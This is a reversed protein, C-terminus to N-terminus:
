PWALKLIARALELIARTLKFIRGTFKFVARTLKLIAWAVVVITNTATASDHSFVALRKAIIRETFATYDVEVVVIRDSHGEQGAATM